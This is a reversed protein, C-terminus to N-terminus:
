RCDAPAVQNQELWEQQVDSQRHQWLMLLQVLHMKLRHYTPKCCKVCTSLNIWFSNVTQMIHKMKKSCFIKICNKFKQISELQVWIHIIQRRKLGRCHKAFFMAYITQHEMCYHELLLLILQGHSMSKLKIPPRHLQTQSVQRHYNPHLKAEMM